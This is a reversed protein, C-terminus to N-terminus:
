EHEIVSQESIGPAQVGLNHEDATGLLRDMWVFTPAYNRNFRRHHRDHFRAGGLFPLFRSPRWPFEYGVHVSVAQWQRVVVWVLVTFLHPRLLIVPLVTGFGTFITELPHAYNAAPGFPTTYHHHIHHIKKYGWRTHLSRHAFYHWADEVVLCFLLSGIVSLPGPLPADKAVGLMVFLPFSAFTLPIESTFKHFIVYRLCEWWDKGDHVRSQIKYRRQSPMQDLLWCLLDGTAYSVTVVITPMLGYLFFNSKGDVFSQWLQDM